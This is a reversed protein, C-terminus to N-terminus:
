GKGRSRVLYLCALSGVLLAALLTAAGLKWTANIWFEIPFFQILSDEHPFTWTNPPFLVEHFRIFFWDFSILASILIGGIVGFLAVSGRWAARAVPLRLNPRLLAAMLAVLFVANGALWLWRVVDLAVKVDILHIIERENYVREEGRRMERLAQIGQRVSLYRVTQQSLALREEPQFREAPPFGPQAYQHAVFAPSALLLVNGAPLLVFLALAVILQGLGALVKPRQM